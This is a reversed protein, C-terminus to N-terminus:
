WRVIASSGPASCRRAGQLDPYGPPIPYCFDAQAAVLGAFGGDVQYGTFRPHNCLNERGTRCYRCGGCTAGLWAVGVRAGAAFRTVRKGTAVVTGVIQHGPIIPLKPEALEGDVIHLDTRCVACVHVRLLLEEPGPVPTPVEVPRLPSGAKDLIMARMPQRGDSSTCWLTRWGAIDRWGEAPNNPAVVKVRDFLVAQRDLVVSRALAAKEEVPM